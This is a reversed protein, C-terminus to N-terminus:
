VEKIYIKIHKILEFIFITFTSLLFGVVAGLIMNRIHNPYSYTQPIEAYDIIKASSGLVIQPIESIVIDAFINAIYASKEKNSSNVSVYLIQEEEKSKYVNISDYIDQETINFNLADVLKSIINKSKSLFIYTNVLKQSATIDSSSLQTKDSDISNVIYISVNSSYIPTILFVSYLFITGTFFLTILIIIWFKKIVSFIVKNLNFFRNNIINNNSVM